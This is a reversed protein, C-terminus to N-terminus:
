SFGLAERTQLGLTEEPFIGNYFLDSWVQGKHFTGSRQPSLFDWTECGDNQISLSMGM